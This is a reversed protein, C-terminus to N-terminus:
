FRYNIGAFFGFSFPHVDIASVKDLANLYYRFRPEFTIAFNTVLPYELGLGVSGLYNVQNIKTTEGIRTSHGDEILNVSNGFLFNTVMGGSFSLDMKRDILKYKLIIPVEFYDFYQRLSIDDVGTNETNISANVMGYRESLASVHDFDSSQNSAGGTGAGDSIVGTSNTISLFKQTETTTVPGYYKNTFQEVQTKEQGYRSYYIGSQVTLRRGPSFAVNLGGSYALIGNETKNLNDINESTLEDSKITRYSYLPAGEGGMSWRHASEKEPEETDSYDALLLRLAEEESIKQSERIGSFNLDKNQEALLRFLNRNIIRKMQLERENVPSSSTEIDHIEINKESEESLNKNRLDDPVRMINDKMSSTSSKNMRTEFSEPDAQSKNLENTGVNENGQRVIRDNNSNKSSKYEEAKVDPRQALSSENRTSIDTQNRTLYYVGLGTSILLAMGAAIKFILLMMRQKKKTRLLQSINDWATDPPSTEFTGLRDRFYKDTTNNKNEM